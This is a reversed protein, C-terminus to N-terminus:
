TCVASVRFAWSGFSLNHRPVFLPQTSSSRTSKPTTHLQILDALYPPRGTHLAKYTIIALKFRIRWEIPFWHLQQMANTPSIPCSFAGAFRSQGTRATRASPSSCTNTSSHVVPYSTKNRLYERNLQALQRFKKDLNQHKKPRWKKRPLVRWIQSMNKFFILTLVSYQTLIQHRDVFRCRFNYANFFSFSFFDVVAAFCFLMREDVYSDRSELLSIM